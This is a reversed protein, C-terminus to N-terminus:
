VEEEPDRRGAALDRVVETSEPRRTPIGFFAGSEAYDKRLPHGIWEDPLMIRRLDGNGPFDIGLLDWAEREFWGAGPLVCEVSPVSPRDRRTEVRLVLRHRHRTSVLHIVVAMSDPPIDIGSLCRMYDLGIEPDDRLFTCAEVLREAPLSLQPELDEYIAATGPGLKGDLRRAIEAQDLRTGNM